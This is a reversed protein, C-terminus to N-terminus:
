RRRMQAANWAVVAAQAGIATGLVAWARRPHGTRRCWAALAVDAAVVAGKVGAFAWPTGAVGKLAPNAERHGAQLARTTQAVDAGALGALVGSAVTFRSGAHAPAAALLLLIVVKM